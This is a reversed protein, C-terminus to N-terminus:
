RRVKAKLEEFFNLVVDFHPIAQGAEAREVVLFRQGDNAVDWDRYDSVHAFLRVPLGSPEGEVIRAAMVGSPGQYFLEGGMRNWAPGVGGDISVKTKRGSPYAQVYVEARGSENSQYAIWRGDPSFVGDREWFRSKVVPKLPGAALAAAATM